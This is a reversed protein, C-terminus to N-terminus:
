SVKLSDHVRDKMRNNSLDITSLKSNKGKKLSQFIYIFSFVIVQGLEMFGDETEIGSM